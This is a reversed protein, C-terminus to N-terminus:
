KARSSLRDGRLCPRKRRLCSLRDRDLCSPRKVGLRLIVDQAIAVEEADDWAIFAAGRCILNAKEALAIAEKIEGGQLLSEIRRKM